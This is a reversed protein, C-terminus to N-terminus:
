SNGFLFVEQSKEPPTKTKLKRSFRNRRVLLTMMIWPLYILPDTLIYAGEDLARDGLTM